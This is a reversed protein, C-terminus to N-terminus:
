IIETNYVRVHGSNSGNGDNNIAGIAVRDGASNLSVSWGLQDSVAEGDIDSGLQTWVSGNWSYVRVHGSGNGNAGNAGIAGIAVRDGASNMSVSFGSQAGAVEGVIVSGLIIWASGNWSYVKVHGSNTGNAGSYRTGIAVRDGASNMSVSWGSYTMYGEGDIDVGLQTWASGDWSYV